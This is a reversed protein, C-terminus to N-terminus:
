GVDDRALHKPAANKWAAALAERAVDAKVAELRVTTPGIRGWEGTAPEFVEPALQLFLQQQEPKLKVMGCGADPSGLTAFIKGHVRFDPHGMHSAERTEPLSLALERFDDPTM